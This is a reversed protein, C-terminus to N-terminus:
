WYVQETCKNPLQLTHSHSETRFAPCSKAPFLSLTQSFRERSLYLNFFVSQLTLIAPLGWVAKLVCVYLGEFKRVAACVLVRMGADTMSNHVDCVLFFVVM